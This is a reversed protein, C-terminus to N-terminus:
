VTSVLFSMVAFSAKIHTLRFADYMHWAYVIVWCLNTFFIYLLYTLSWSWQTKECFQMYCLAPPLNVGGGGTISPSILGMFNFGWHLHKFVWLFHNISVIILMCWWCVTSHYKIRNKLKKQCIEFKEGTKSSSILGTFFERWAFKQMVVPSLSHTRTCPITLPKLPLLGVYKDSVVVLVDERGPLLRNFDAPIFWNSTGLVRLCNQSLANATAPGCSHFARWSLMRFMVVNLCAM